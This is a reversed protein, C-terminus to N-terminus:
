APPVPTGGIRLAWIVIGNIIAVPVFSILVVAFARLTSTYDLSQRVAIVMAAFQWLAAVLEIILGLIPIFIFVKLIGPTQAFGTGRALQGWDAQTDRTGLIKSGVFWALLAWVAWSLLSRLVGFVVDKLLDAEGALLTGVGTAISVVIVILMAQLTAGSDHEVDEFTAVNLRAVGLMRALMSRGRLGSKRPDTSITRSDCKGWKPCTVVGSCRSSAPGTAPNVWNSAGPTWVQCRLKTHRSCFLVPAQRPFAVQYKAALHCKPESCLAPTTHPWVEIAAPNVPWQHAGQPMSGQNWGKYNVVQRLTHVIRTTDKQSDMVTDIDKYAAPHEDLLAAPQQNWAKGKMAENLSEQTLNKKAQSRSMRRGAGHSSSNYSAPNGLVKTIYSKTGMSGPIVGWQGNTAEIAGKRTIWLM